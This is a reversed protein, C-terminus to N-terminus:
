TSCSLCISASTSFSHLLNLPTVPLM